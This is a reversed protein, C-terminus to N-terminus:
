QCLMITPALMTRNAIPRSLICYRPSGGLTRQQLRGGTPSVNSHSAHPIQMRDDRAYLTPASASLKPRLHVRMAHRMLLLRTGVLSLHIRRGLGHVRGPIGDTM